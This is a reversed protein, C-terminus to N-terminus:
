LISGVILPISSVTATVDRLAYLKADAPTLKPTQSSIAAGISKIQNLFENLELSTRFNKIAELKDITGGTFDLGRGSLKAVSLGASALLPVLILTTKDGVGGTSHKDVVYDGLGSLDLIDGSNAMAATLAATEDINMGNLYVAMLWAAIQYDPISDNTINEIIFNIEDKSHAKGDRKQAILDIIRFKKM